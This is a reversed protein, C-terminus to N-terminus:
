AAFIGKVPAGDEGSNRDRRPLGILARSACPRICVVARAAPGAPFLWAAHGAGNRRWGYGAPRRRDACRAPVAPGRRATWWGSRYRSPCAGTAPSRNWPGDGRGSTAALPQIARSTVQPSPERRLFCCRSPFMIIWYAKQQKQRASPRRAPAPAGLGIAQDQRGAKMGRHHGLAQAGDAVHRQAAVVDIDGGAVAGVAGDTPMM